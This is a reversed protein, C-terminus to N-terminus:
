CTDTPSKKQTFDVVLFKSDFLEICFSDSKSQKDKEYRIIQPNALRQIRWNEVQQQVTKMLEYQNSSLEEFERDLVRAGQATRFLGGYGNLFYNNELKILLELVDEDSYEKAFIEPDTNILWGNPQQELKGIIAEAGGFLGTEVALDNNEKVYLETKEENLLIYRKGNEKIGLTYGMSEKNVGRFLVKGDKQVKLYGYNTEPSCVNQKETMVEVVVEGSKRETKGIVKNYYTYRDTKQEGILDDAAPIYKEPNIQLCYEVPFYEEPYMMSGLNIELKIPALTSSTEDNYYKDLVDQKFETRSILIGDVKEKEKNFPIFRSGDYYSVLETPIEIRVKAVETKNVEPTKFGLYWGIKEMTPKAYILGLIVAVLVFAAIVAYVIEKTMGRKHIM